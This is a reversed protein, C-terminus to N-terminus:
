RDDRGARGPRRPERTRPSISPCCTATSVARPLIASGTAPARVAAVRRVRVAGRDVRLRPEPRPRRHAQDAGPGRDRAGPEDDPWSGDGVMVFV